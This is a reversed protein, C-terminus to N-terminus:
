RFRWNERFSSPPGIGMQAALTRPGETARHHVCHMCIGLGATSDERARGKLLSRLLCVPAPATLLISNEELAGSHTGTSVSHAVCLQRSCGSRTPKQWECVQVWMFVHLCVHMSTMLLFLFLEKGSLSLCWGVM